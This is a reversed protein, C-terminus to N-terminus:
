VHKEMKQLIDLSKLVDDFAACEIVPHNVHNEAIKALVQMFDINGNGVASHTDSEGANDHLHIHSFPVNLFKDLTKCENAHGVDLCFGTDGFFKLDDTDKLFFNGWNGQNEAFFATGYEEASAHMEDLSRLLAQVAAGREQEWAYNGPHFVVPANVEAAIAFTDCIAKVSAKRIPELVSAPNVGQMPAHISWKFSYSELPAASELFHAGNSMVEVYETHSVLKDLAEHLPLAALCHTSVAYQM